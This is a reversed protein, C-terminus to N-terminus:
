LEVAAPAPAPAAAAAAAVVSACAAARQVRGQTAVESGTLGTRACFISTVRPAMHCACDGSVRSPRPPPLPRRRLPWPASQPLSAACPCSPCDALPKKARRLCAPRGAQPRATAPVWFVDLRKPHVQRYEACGCAFVWPSPRPARRTCALVGGPAKGIADKGALSKGQIAARKSVAVWGAKGPPWVSTVATNLANLEADRPARAAQERRWHRVYIACCAETSQGSPRRWAARRRQRCHQPRQQRHHRLYSPRCVWGGQGARQPPGCLPGHQRARATRQAARRLACRRRVLHDHPPGHRRVSLNLSPRSPPSPRAPSPANRLRAPAAAKPRGSRSFTAAM